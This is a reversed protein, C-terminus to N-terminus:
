LHTPLAWTGRNSRTLQREIHGEACQPSHSRRVAACRHMLHQVPVSAHKVCSLTIPPHSARGHTHPPADAVSQTCRHARVTKVTLCYGPSHAPTSGLPPPCDPMHNAHIDAVKHAAKHIHVRTLNVCVRAQMDTAPATPTGDVSYLQTDRSAPPVGDVM